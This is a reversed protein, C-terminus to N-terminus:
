IQKRKVYQQAEHSLRFLLSKKLKREEEFDICMWNMEKM